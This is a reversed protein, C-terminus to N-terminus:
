ASLAKRVNCRQADCPVGSSPQSFGVTVFVSVKGYFAMKETLMEYLVRRDVSKGNAHEPSMYAATGLLVGQMTTLRSLTPATSIDLSAADEEMAKALGFDLIKV